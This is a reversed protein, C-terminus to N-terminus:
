CVYYGNRIEAVYELEGEEMAFVTTYPLPRFSEHYALLDLPPRWHRFLRSGSVRVRQDKGDDSGRWRTPSKKATSFCGKFADWSMAMSAVLAAGGIM